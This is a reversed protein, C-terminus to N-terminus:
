AYISAVRTIFSVMVSLRVQVIFPCINTLACPSMVRIQPFDVQTLQPTNVELVWADAIACLAAFLLATASISRSYM